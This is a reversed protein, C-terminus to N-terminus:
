TEASVCLSTSRRRCPCWRTGQATDVQNTEHRSMPFGASRTRFCPKNSRAIFEVADLPPLVEKVKPDDEWQFWLVPSLLRTVSPMRVRRWPWRTSTFDTVQHHRRINCAENPASFLSAPSTPPSAEPVMVLYCALSRNGACKMVTRLSM